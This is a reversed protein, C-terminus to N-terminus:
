LNTGTCRGRSILYACKVELDAISRKLEQERSIQQRLGSDSNEISTGIDKAQAQAQALRERVCVHAPLANYPDTQWLEIQNLLGAAITGSEAHYSLSTVQAAVLILSLFLCLTVCWEVVNTTQLKCEM